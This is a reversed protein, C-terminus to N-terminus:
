ARYRLFMRTSAATDPNRRDWERCLAEYAAADIVRCGIFVPTFTDGFNSKFRFLTDGPDDTLGGGWVIRQRGAALAEVAMAWYLYDNPCSARFALDSGALHQHVLRGGMFLMAAAVPNPPTAADWVTVFRVREPDIAAVSAFFGPDFRLLRQMQLREATLRYLRGFRAVTAPDNSVVHHLGLRQGKRVDRRAKEKWSALIGDPGKGRVDCEVNTRVQLTRYGAASLPGPQVWETHCRVFEAVAGGARLHAAVAGLAERRRDATWEGAFLPGGYGYATQADWRGPGVGVVHDYDTIPHRLYPYLMRRGAGHDALLCRPEAAEWRGSIAYFQPHWFIERCPDPLEQWAGLWDNYELERLEM